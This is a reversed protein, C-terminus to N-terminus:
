AIAEETPPSAVQERGPRKLEKPPVLLRTPDAWPNRRRWLVQRGAAMGIRFPDIHLIQLSEGVHPLIPTEDTMVAILTAAMGESPRRALQEHVALVNRDHGPVFVAVSSSPLRDFMHVLDEGGDLHLAESALGHAALHFDFAVTRFDLELNRDTTLRAAYISRCCTTVAVKAAWEGCAGNDVMVADATQCTGTTGFAWVIPIGSARLAQGLAEDGGPTRAGSRVIVGDLEGRSIATPLAGDPSLTLVSVHVNEEALVKEVGSVLGVALPTQSSTLRTDPFLVGVSRPTGSKRQSKRRLRNRRPVYGLEQMVSRVRSATVPSHRGSNNLVGSVTAVSVAAAEAVQQITTQRAM